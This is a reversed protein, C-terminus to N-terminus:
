GGLMEPTVDDFSIVRIGPERALYDATQHLVAIFAEDPKNDRFYEWWHTVLITLTRSHIAEKISDLM